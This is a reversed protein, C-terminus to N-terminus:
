PPPCPACVAGDDESGLPIGLEAAAASACTISGVMPSSGSPIAGSANSAPFFGSATAAAAAAQSGFGGSSGSISPGAQM